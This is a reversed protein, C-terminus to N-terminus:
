YGPFLGKTTAAAWTSRLTMPRKRSFRLGSADKSPRLRKTFSAM